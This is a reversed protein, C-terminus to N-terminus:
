VGESTIMKARKSIMQSWKGTHCTFTMSTSGQSTSWHTSTENVKWMCSSTMWTSSTTHSINWKQVPLGSKTIIQSLLNLGFCLQPSLGEGLLIGGKISVQALPWTCYIDMWCGHISVYVSLWSPALTATLIMLDASWQDKWWAAEQRRRRSSTLLGTFHEFCSANGTLWAPRCSAAPREM